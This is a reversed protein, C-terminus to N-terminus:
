RLERADGYLNILLAYSKPPLGDDQLAFGEKRLFYTSFVATQSEVMSFLGYKVLQDLGEDPNVLYNRWVKAAHYITDIAHSYFSPELGGKVANQLKEGFEDDLQINYLRDIHTQIKKWGSIRQASITPTIEVWNFAEPAHLFPFADKKVM